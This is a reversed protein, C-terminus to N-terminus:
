KLGMLTNVLNKGTPNNVREPKKSAIKKSALKMAGPHRVLSSMKKGAKEPLSGKPTASDWESVAKRGGLARIGAPSHGWAAQAKSVWPM